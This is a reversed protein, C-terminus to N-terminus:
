ECRYREPRFLTAMATTILGCGLLRRPRLGSCRSSLGVRRVLCANAGTGPSDALLATNRDRQAPDTMATLVFSILRTSPSPAASALTALDRKRLTTEVRPEAPHEVIVMALGGSGHRHIAPYYPSPLLRPRCAKRGVSRHGAVAAETLLGANGRRQNRWSKLSSATAYASTHFTRTRLQAPAAEGKAPRSECGSSSM